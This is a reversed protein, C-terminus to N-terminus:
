ISTNLLKREIFFNHSAPIYKIIDVATAKEGPKIYLIVASYTTDGESYLGRLGAAGTTGPNIIISDARVKVSQQHTHGTVILPFSNQLQQAVQNNHVVAIDPKNVSQTEISEILSKQMNAQKQKDEETATNSFSLPDPAGLIKLGAIEIINDQFVQTDPLSEIFEIIEPSDHNGPSFLYPLEIKSLEHAFMTELPSGFDTLDGTDIILDVAFADAISSILEIGVPNSHLDGVLLVKRTYNEHEPSGISALGKASTFLAEINNVMMRTQSQVEDLKELLKDPEPFVSAALSLVGSVEPQAFADIDYSDFLSFLVLSIALTGILAGGIIYKINFRWLLLVAIASGLLALYIQRILFPKILEPLDVKLNSLANNESYSDLLNSALDVGINDLTIQLTVPLNHTDASINGLPPIEVITKGHMAPKLSLSLSLGDVDYVAAGFLSVFLIAGMLASTIIAIPKAKKLINIFPAINTM